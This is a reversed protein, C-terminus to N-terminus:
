TVIKFIQYIYKSIKTSEYKIKKDNDSLVNPAKAISLSSVVPFFLFHTLALDPRIKAYFFMNPM